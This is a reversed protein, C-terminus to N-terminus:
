HEVDVEEEDQEEKMKEFPPPPPPSHTLAHHHLMVLLCTMNDGGIGATLKPDDAMCRRCVERVVQVPEMGMDLRETVFDCAQQNNLCDWVGDCALLFFRDNSQLTTVTVDPEATIMQETMPLNPNQKYKLDGLSRSLNLNGNIRGVLNVYGGAKTIRNMERDQQPKHDMSLAVASGARCLVGRSDGANAVYLKNGVSLAVIATCGAQIRHEKLVCMMGKPTARSSEYTEVASSSPKRDGHRQMLLTDLSRSKHVLISSEGNSSSSSTTESSSSSTSEAEIDVDADTLDGLHFEELVDHIAAATGSGASKGDEETLPKKMKANILISRILDVAQSTSLSKKTALNHSLVLEQATKTGTTAAASQGHKEAALRIIDLLHADPARRNRGNGDGFKTHRDDSPNPLARLESLMGDYSKDELTEDVKHFSQRLAVEFDGKLFSDLSLLIEAYKLKTFKAVEKGGHGDFVGFLAINPLQELLTNPESSITCSLDSFSSNEESAAVDNASKFVTSFKKKYAADERLDTITIHADEMNKRWGQMEGVAYEMHFNECNHSGEETFIENSPVSLYIGMSFCNLKINFGIQNSDNVFIM